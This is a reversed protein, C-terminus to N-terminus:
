LRMASRKRRMASRRRRMAGSEEEDDMAFDDGTAKAENQDDGRELEKFAILISKQDIKFAIDGSQM